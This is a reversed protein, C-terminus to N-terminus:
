CATRPLGRGRQVDGERRSLALQANMFHDKVMAVFATELQPQMPLSLFTTHQRYLSECHDATFRPGLDAAMQLTTVSRLRLAHAAPATHLM